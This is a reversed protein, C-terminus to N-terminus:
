ERKENDVRRSWGSRLKGPFGFGSMIANPHLKEGWEELYAKPNPGFFVDKFACNKSV